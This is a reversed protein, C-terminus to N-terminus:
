NNEVYDKEEQIYIKIDRTSTCLLLCMQTLKLKACNTEFWKLAKNFADRPKSRRNIGTTELFVMGKSRKRISSVDFVRLKRKAAALKDRTIFEWLWKVTPYNLDKTDIRIPLTTTVLEDDTSEVIVTAKVLM